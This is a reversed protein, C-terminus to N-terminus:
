FVTLARGPDVGLDALDDFGAPLERGLVGGAFEDVEGDGAGLGLPPAGVVPVGGQGGELDM